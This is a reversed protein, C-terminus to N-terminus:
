RPQRCSCSSTVGALQCGSVMQGGDALGQGQGWPAGARCGKAKDECDGDQEVAAAERQAAAGAHLTQGLRVCCSAETDCRRLAGPPLGDSICSPEITTIGKNECDRKTICERSDRQPEQHKNLKQM